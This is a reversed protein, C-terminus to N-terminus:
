CKKGRILRYSINNKRFIKRECQNPIFNKLVSKELLEEIMEAINRNFGSKFYIQLLDIYIFRFYVSKGSIVVPPVHKSFARHIDPIDDNGPVRFACHAVFIVSEHTDPCHRTVAVIDDTMQDVYM